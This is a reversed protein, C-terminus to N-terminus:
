GAPAPDRHARLTAWPGAPRRGVDISERRGQGAQGLVAARVAHGAAEEPAHAFIFAGPEAVHELVHRDLQLVDRTFFDREALRAARALGTDVGDDVFVRLAIFADGGTLKASRSSHENSGSDSRGGPETGSPQFQGSARSSKM